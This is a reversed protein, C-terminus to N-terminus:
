VTFKVVPVFASQYQSKTHYGEYYIWKAETGRGRIALMVAMAGLGWTKGLQYYRPDNARLACGLIGGHVLSSVTIFCYTSEAWRGGNLCAEIHVIHPLVSQLRRGRDCSTTM